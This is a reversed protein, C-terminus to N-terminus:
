SIGIVQCTESGTVSAGLLRLNDLPMAPVIRLFCLFLVVSTWNATLIATASFTPPYRRCYVSSPIVPPTTHIHSSGLHARISVSLWDVRGPGFYM